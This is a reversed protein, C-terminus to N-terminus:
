PASPRQSPKNTLSTNAKGAKGSEPALARVAEEVSHFVHDAGLTDLLGSRAATAEARVAALRALAVDTGTKRLRRILQLLMQAGTYDIVAIGSADIVVLKVPGSAREIAADLRATIYGANTFNIPAAPAFVLVGPVHEREEKPGPAWWITTGPLRALVACAPRAVTFISHVLSLVVSLAVGIEIPLVVVLAISALVLLIEAGGRRAIQIMQDLRFIRLGIFVLVADLAASPVFAFVPGAFLVLLVVAGAATLPALQSRGGSGAVIATSPPSADVPFTGALAAAINAAGVAAFDRGFDEALDPDTPFSRGVAATQMICVMAITLALPVIQAIQRFDAEPLRPPTFRGDLAGLMHVHLGFAWAALAAGAVGILAGPIRPSIRAAGLTAALVGAALWAAPRNADPLQRVIELLKVLVHENDAKIQLIGALQGVIIHVAIGALFGVTVPVSLLDAIWGARLIGAFALIVGVMLALMGVLEAQAPNPGHTMAILYAGFIPAITSDAGVSMFRNAGFVAFAATAAVFAILGTLPPMGALGATAIQGPIVIALLMLGAVADRV